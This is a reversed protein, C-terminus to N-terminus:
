GKWANLLRGRVCPSDGRRMWEMSHPLLLPFLPLIQRSTFRDNPIIVRSSKQKGPFEVVQARAEGLLVNQGSGVLALFPVQVHDGLLEAVDQDVVALAHLDTDWGKHTERQGPTSPQWSM